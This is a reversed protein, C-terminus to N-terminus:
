SDTCATRRSVVLDARRDAGARRTQVSTGSAPHCNFRGCAHDCTRATGPNPCPRGSEGSCSHRRLNIALNHVREEDESVENCRRERSAPQFPVTWENDFRYTHLASRPLLCSPMDEFVLSSGSCREALAALMLERM